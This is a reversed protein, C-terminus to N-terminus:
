QGESSVEAIKRSERSKQEKILLAEEFFGPSLAPQDRLIQRNACFALTLAPWSFDRCSGLCGPCVSAAQLQLPRSVSAQDRWPLSTSAFHQFM